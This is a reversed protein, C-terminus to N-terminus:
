VHSIQKGYRESKIIRNYMIFWIIKVYTLFFDHLLIVPSDTMLQSIIIAYFPFKSIHFRTISISFTLQPPM